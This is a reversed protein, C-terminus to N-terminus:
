IDPMRQLVREFLNASTPFCQDHKRWVSFEDETITEEIVQRGGGIV